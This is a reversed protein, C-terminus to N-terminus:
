RGMSKKMDQDIWLWRYCSNFYAVSGEGSYNKLWPWWMKYTAPILKPIVWAQDLVYKMLEKHMQLAAPPDIIALNQIQPFVSEVREDNVNSINNHGPGHIPQMQYLVALPPGSAIGYIMQEATKGQSIVTLPGTETPRLELNVGVKSWMDKIISYYDVIESLTQMYAFTKFGQPYGAETLLRKAKEPNYSYLEKVSAPMEPDDLGLYAGAYAKAYAIPWTIIQADGGYLNQKIGEFDTAMMLARRVRIDKFPANYINMGLSMTTQAYAKKWLLEPTTQQLRQFDERSISALEDIKGTRLAAQQTSLDPLILFKISDLYPLQNGKGPGIPDKMWYNPNRVLTALGGPVYDTLIFPGSGVSVRWSSMNGYKKVVEPPVIQVYEGFRSIAVQMGLWPVQVKVTRKDSATM